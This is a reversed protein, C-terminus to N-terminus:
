CPVWSCGYMTGNAGFGSCEMCTRGTGESGACAFSDTAVYLSRCGWIMFRNAGWCTLIQEEGVPVTFTTDTYYVRVTEQGPLAQAIQGEESPSEDPPAGGCNLVLPLVGFMWKAKSKM